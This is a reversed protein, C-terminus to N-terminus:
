RLQLTPCGDQKGFSEDSNQGMGDDMISKSECIEGCIQDGGDNRIGKGELLEVHTRADNSRPPNPSSEGLSENYVLSQGVPQELPNRSANIRGEEQTKQNLKTNLDARSKVLELELQNSLALLPPCHNLSSCSSSAISINDRDDCILLSPQNMLDHGPINSRHQDEIVRKRRIDDILTRATLNHQYRIFDREGTKVLARAEHRDESRARIRIMRPSSPLSVSRDNDHRNGFNRMVQPANTTPQLSYFENCQQKLFRNDIVNTCNVVDGCYNHECTSASARHGDANIFHHHPNQSDCDNSDVELKFPSQLSVYNRKTPSHQQLEQNNNAPMLGVDLMMLSLVQQGMPKRLIRDNLMQHSYRDSNLKQQNISSCKTTSNSEANDNENRNYNDNNNNTSDNNTARNENQGNFQLTSPSSPAAQAPGTEIGTSHNHGPLHKTSQKNNEHQKKDSLDNECESAVSLSHNNTIIKNLVFQDNKDRENKGSSITAATPSDTTSPSYNLKAASDIQSSNHITSPVTTKPQFACGFRGGDQKSERREEKGILDCYGPSNNKHNLGAKGSIIQSSNTAAHHQQRSTNTTPSIKGVTTTTTTTAATLNVRSSSNQPHVVAVSLQPPSKAAGLGRAPQAHGDVITITRTLSDCFNFQIERILSCM